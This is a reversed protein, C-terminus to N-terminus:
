TSGGTACYSPVGPNPKTDQARSHKPEHHSLLQQIRDTSYIRERLGMPGIRSFAVEPLPYPMYHLLTDLQFSRRCAIFHIYWHPRFVRQYFNLHEALLLMTPTKILYGREPDDQALVAGLTDAFVLGHRRYMMEAADVLSIDPPISTM